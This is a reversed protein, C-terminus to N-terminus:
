LFKSNRWCPLLWTDEKGGLQDLAPETIRIILYSTTAVRLVKSKLNASFSKQADKDLKESGYIVVEDAGYTEYRVKEDNSVGAVVRAGYAKAIDIALGVGGSAGM